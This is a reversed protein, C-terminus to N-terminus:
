AERSTPFSVVDRSDCIDRRCTECAKGCRPCVNRQAKQPIRVNGCTSCQCTWFHFAELDPEDLAASYLAWDSTVLILRDGDQKLERSVDLGVALYLADAGGLGAKGTGVMGRPVLKHRKLMEIGESFHKPALEIEVLGESLQIDRIFSNIAFDLQEGDILRENHASITASVVEVRIISPFAVISEPYAMIQDINSTGIDAFYHRAMASADFLFVIM